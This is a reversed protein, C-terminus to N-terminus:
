KRSNVDEKMKYCLETLRRTIEPYKEGLNVTEGPDADLDALFVEPDTEHKEFSYRGNLILKWKGERLALQDRIQWFLRQHLTKEKGLAMPLIDRGDVVRDDPVGAGALNLFTPLIDIACGLEDCTIGAPIGAPWSLIAPMHIGGEFLGGKWGTYPANSGGHYYEGSDDHLCRKEITAGNDSQFLVVTNGTLGAEKLAGMIRGMSHDVTAIMAAQQRRHPELHSYQEFYERPAHMPYHPSNYAVYLLFPGSSNERIFRVSERTIIDTMYTGNEWVEQGNKWLDHVPYVGAGMEWYMIHSYYDVCGSHFGYFEDFGQANPRSETASGLHWKGFVGTRYGLGKLAKAITIEDGYLGPTKRSSRLIRNVGTRQPYRGTLLSARSPSCVPSSSYWNTFKVGGAALADMSPTRIDTAGFCGLDGIGQDDTYFIIFNPRNESAFADPNRLLAGAAALGGTSLNIFERRNLKKRVSM